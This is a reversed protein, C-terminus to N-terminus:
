LSTENYSDQVTTTTDTDTVNTEESYEQYTQETEEIPSGLSNEDNSSHDGYDTHSDTIIPDDSITNHDGMLDNNTKVSGLLNGTGNSHTIVDGGAQIASGANGTIRDVAIVGAGWKIGTSVVGFGKEVVKNKAKVEAIQADFLNTASCPDTDHGTAAAVAGTIQEGQMMFMLVYGRDAAPVQLLTTSKQNEHAQQAAYCATRSTEVDENANVEAQTPAHASCGALGMVVILGFLFISLGQARM